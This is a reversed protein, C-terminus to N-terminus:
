RGGRRRRAWTALVLLLAAVGATPSAAGPLGQCGGTEGGGATKYYEAFNFYEVSQANFSSVPQSFNGAQDEIFGFVAYSAGPRVGELRVSDGNTASRQCLDESEVGTPDGLNTSYFLANAEIGPVSPESGDADYPRACAYFKGEAPVDEDSVSVVLARDATAIFLAGAAPPEREDIRVSLVSAGLTIDVEVAPTTADEELTGADLGGQKFRASKTSELPVYAPVFEWTSDEAPSICGVTGDSSWNDGFLLRGLRGSLTFTGDGLESRGVCGCREPETTDFSDACRQADDDTCGEGGDRQVLVVGYYDVDGNSADFIQVELKTQEDLVGAVCEAHGLQALRDGADDAFSVTFRDAGGGTSADQAHASMPGLAAFVLGVTRLRFPSNRNVPLM